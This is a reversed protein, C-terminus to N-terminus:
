FHSKEHKMFGIAALLLGLVFSAFIIGFDRFVIFKAQSVSNEDVIDVIQWLTNAVQKQALIRDQEETSLYKDRDLKVRAGKAAIEILADSDNKILMVQYGPLQLNSVFSAINVPEFSVFFIMVRGDNTHMEQM